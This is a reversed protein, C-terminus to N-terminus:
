SVSISANLKAEKMIYYQEYARKKAQEKYNPDNNYKGGERENNRIKEAERCEPHDNKYQSSYSSM